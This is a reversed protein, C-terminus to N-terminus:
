RADVAAALAAYSGILEVRVEDVLPDARHCGASVWRDSLAMASARRAAAPRVSAEPVAYLHAYLRALADTLARAGADGGGGYQGVRHVRWWELELEAAVAPDFAERGARVTLGYLRQMARRARAPDNDRLPAWLRVARLALWASHVTAPWSLGLVRRGLTLALALFSAWERRYYAVWAAAELRGVVVPDFSRHPATATRLGTAGRRAPPMRRCTISSVELPSNM